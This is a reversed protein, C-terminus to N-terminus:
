PPAHHHHHFCAQAKQAELPGSVRVGWSRCLSAAQEQRQSPESPAWCVVAHVLLPVFAPRLHSAGTGENANVLAADHSFRSRTQQLHKM